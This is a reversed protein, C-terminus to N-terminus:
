HSHVFHKAELQKFKLPILKWYEKLNELKSTKM